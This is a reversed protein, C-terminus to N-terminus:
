AIAYSGSFFFSSEWSKLPIQVRSTAIDTGRELQAIFGSINPAPWNHTNYTGM